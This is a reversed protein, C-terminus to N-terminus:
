VRYRLANDLGKKLVLWGLARVQERLPTTTTSLQNRPQAQVLVVKRGRRGRPSTTSLTSPDTVRETGVALEGASGRPQYGKFMLNVAEDRAM